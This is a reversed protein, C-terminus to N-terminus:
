KPREGYMDIMLQNYSKNFTEQYERLYKQEIKGHENKFWGEGYKETYKKNIEPILVKNAHDATKNYIKMANRNVKRDYNAQQKKLKKEAKQAFHKENKAIRKELVRRDRADYADQRKKTLGVSLHEGNNLRELDRKDGALQRKRTLYRGSGAHGRVIRAGYQSKRRGWKMGKVGYHMLYDHYYSSNEYYM